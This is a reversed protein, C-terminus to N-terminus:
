TFLFFSPFFSLSTAPVKIPSRGRGGLAVHETGGAM